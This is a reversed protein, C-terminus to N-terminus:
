NPGSVSVAACNTAKLTVTVRQVSYCGSASTSRIYYHTANTPSVTSSALSGVGSQAAGQTAYYTLTGGGSNTVLTALDISSNKCVTGNTVALAPSTNVAVPISATSFCNATISSRVFYTATALPVITSNALANSGANADALTNHFTLAGAPSNTTVLNALNVSNGLCVSGPSTTLVPLVCTVCASQQVTTTTICPAGSVDTVTITYSTGNASGNQLRFATATGYAIGTAAGGAALTVTGGNNVTVNYTAGLGVGTPNLSFTIYDDAGNAATGNNNCAELTKGASSLACPTCGVVGLTLTVCNSTSECIGASCGAISAVVRFYTTQSIPGPDYTDNNAGPINTFGSNCSTTSQQWQYNIMAGPPTTSAALTVTFPAPDDTSCVTQDGAIQQATVSALLAANVTISYAACPANPTNANTLTFTACAPLATPTGTVDCSNYTFNSSGPNLTWRGDCIIGDCTSNLLESLSIRSSLTANCASADVVGNSPCCESLIAIGKCNAAAGPVPGIATGDDTLSTTWRRVCDENTNLSTTYLRNSNQSYVIGVMQNWGGNNGNNDIPGAGLFAFTSSFKLLRSPTGPSDRNGEVVYINGANDTTIGQLGQFAYAPSLGGYSPDTNLNINPNYTTHATFNAANPTFVYIKGSANTVYFKGNKDISFGWDDSGDDLQVYGVQAGTCPDWKYIRASEGNSYLFGDYSDINYLGNGVNATNFGNVPDQAFTPTINGACDVRRITSPSFATNGIYLYGNRDTGLGHPFPFATNNAVWPNGIETLGGNGSNVEFKHISSSTFNFNVENVYIFEKCSCTPAQAYTASANLLLFGGILLGSYLHQGSFPLAASRARMRRLMVRLGSRMWIHAFGLSLILVVFCPPASKLVQAPNEGLGWSLAAGFLAFFALGCVALLFNSYLRNMKSLKQM